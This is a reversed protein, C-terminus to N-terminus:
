FLKIIQDWIFKGTGAIIALIAAWWLKNANEKTKTISKLEELDDGAIKKLKATTQELPHIKGEIYDLKKSILSTRESVDKLLDERRKSDVNSERIRSYLGNDPDYISDKIYAIEKKIEPMEEHVKNLDSMVKIQSYKIEKIEDRIEDFGGNLVSANEIKSSIKKVLVELENVNEELKNETDKKVNSSSM